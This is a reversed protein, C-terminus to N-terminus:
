RGYIPIIMGDSVRYSSHAPIITKQGNVSIYLTIDSNNVLDGNVYKLAKVADEYEFIDRNTAYYFDEPRNGYTDAFNGLMDWSGSYDASHVGFSFMKLKGDDAYSEYTKMVDLLCSNDANYTWEFRDSPMDFNTSAKISGTKRSYLYGRDILYQKVTDSLKGHPYAYGVVSGEGFIAEIESETLDVYKKYAEDTAIPHWYSSGTYPKGTGIYEMNTDKYYHWDIFYFGEIPSKYIYNVDASADSRIENLNTYIEDKMPILDFDEMMPLCHLYNHNAVEYGEYMDLYTVATAAKTSILNFTGIIGAPKLIDLFKSDYTLNGDDITFTLSKRVYGPFYNADVMVGDGMDIAFQSDLVADQSTIEPTIMATGGGPVVNVLVVTKEGVSKTNAYYIKGDQEYKVTVWNAPVDVQVTLPYNMRSDAAFSSDVYFLSVSIREDNYNEAIVDVAGKEMFYRLADYYFMIALDGSDVLDQAYGFFMDAQEQYIAQSNSSADEYIRHICYCMLSEEDVAQDLWGTWKSTDDQHGIMPANLWSLSNMIADTDMPGGGTGRAALFVNGVGMLTKLYDNYYQSQTQGVGPIVYVDKSLEGFLEDLIQKSALFEAEISGVPYGDAGSDDAGQYAHSYSHNIFDCYGLEAQEKWFAYNADRVTYVYNGNEDKKFQTLGDSGTETQLTSIYNAIAGHSVKLDPYKKILVDAIYTATTQNLDDIVFSAVGKAGNPNVVIADTTYPLDKKEYFYEYAMCCYNYLEKAAPVGDKNLVGAIYTDISYDFLVNNGEKVTVTQGVYSEGDKTVFRYAEPDFIIWRNNGETLVDASGENCNYVKTLETGISVTLKGTFGPKLLFAFGPRNGLRFTAGDVASNKVPAPIVAPTVYDSKYEVGANIYADLVNGINDAKLGLYETATKVYSLLAAILSYNRDYDPNKLMNAAYSEVSAKTNCPYSKGDETYTYTIEFEKSSATKPDMGNFVYFMYPIGKNLVVQTPYVPVGDIIIDSVHGQKFYFNFDISSYLSLSGLFADTPYAAANLSIDSNVVGEAKGSFYLTSSMEYDLFPTSGKQWKEEIVSEGGCLWRVNIIDSASLLKINGIFSVIEDNLKKYTYAPVTSTRAATLGESAVVAAAEISSYTPISSDTVTFTGENGTPVIGIFSCNNFISGTNDSLTVSKGSSNANVFTCQEYIPFQKNATDAVEVSTCGELFFTVRDAKNDLSYYNSRNMPASKGTAVVTTGFLYTRGHGSSLYGNIYITLNAGMNYNPSTYSDCGFTYYCNSSGSYVMRGDVTSNLVGGSVSSFVFAQAGSKIKIFDTTSVTLTHGNLDLFLKRSGSFEYGAEDYTYDDYLTIYMNGSTNESFVDYITKDDGQKVFNQDKATGYSFIVEEGDESVETIYQMDASAYLAFMSCFFIAFFIILHKSFNKM